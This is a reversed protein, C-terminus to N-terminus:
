IDSSFVNGRPFTLGKALPWRLFAMAVIASRESIGIMLTFFYFTWLYLCWSEANNRLFYLVFVRNVIHIKYLHLTNCLAYYRTCYIIFYHDIFTRTLSHVHPQSSIASVRFRRSGWSQGGRHQHLQCDMAIGISLRSSSFEKKYM